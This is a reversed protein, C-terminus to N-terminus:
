QVASADWRVSLRACRLDLSAAAATLAPARVHRISARCSLGLELPTWVDGTRSFARAEIICWLSLCVTCVDFLICRLADTM